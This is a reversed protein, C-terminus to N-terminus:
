GLLELPRNHRLTCLAKYIFNRVSKESIGMLRATEAITFEEFYRLTIVEAQRSPLQAVSSHLWGALRQTTERQIHEAESSLSVSFVGLGSAQSLEQMIPLSARSRQIRRRLSRFLYFKVSVIDPTLTNRLRWVDIFVDQVADEVLDASCSLTCGYHYLTAHYRDFFSRFGQESGKRILHWLEHDSETESDM